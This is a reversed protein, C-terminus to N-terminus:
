VRLLESLAQQYREGVVTLAHKEHAFKRGNKALAM